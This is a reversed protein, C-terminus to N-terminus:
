GEILDPEMQLRVAFHDEVAQQIEGAVALVETAPRHGPNTLVLPQREWVRVPATVRAWSPRDGNRNMCAEILQAAALKRGAPDEYSKLNGHAAALAEFDGTSVVPNKFFSGANPIKRPDPLKRRRVRIVAEAVQIPGPAHDMGMRALEEGIDPYGLNLETASADLRLTLSLVAFQEPKGKLLSTRYGFAMEERSLTRLTGTSLDLVEAMVFRQALEVGYAGINQVPAAGVSGPILALNELGGLGRGLCWRVLEHWNEGAEARVHVGDPAAEASIGRLRMLCLPTKIHDALVVNSGGGLLRPLWGEEQGARWVDLLSEVSDIRHLVRASSPVGLTNLESLAIL